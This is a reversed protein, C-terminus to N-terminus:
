GRAAEYSARADAERLYAVPAAVHTLLLWAGSLRLLTARPSADALEAQVWTGPADVWEVAFTTAGLQRVACPRVCLWTFGDPRRV